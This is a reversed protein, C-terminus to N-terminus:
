EAADAASKKANRKDWFKRNTVRLIQSIVFIGIMYGAFVSVGVWDVGDNTYYKEFMQGVFALPKVPEFEPNNYMPTEDAKGEKSYFISTKRARLQEMVAAETFESINLGTWGCVKEPSQM